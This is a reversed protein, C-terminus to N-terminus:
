KAKIRQRVRDFAEKVSRVRGQRVDEESMALMRLFALTEQTKEYSRVDEVIVKAEGNVTLIVPNGTETIDDIMEAANAKFTSVSKIQGALKM